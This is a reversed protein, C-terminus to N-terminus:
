RSKRVIGLTVSDSISALSIAWNCMIYLKWLLMGRIVHDDYRLVDGEITANIYVQINFADGTAIANYQFRVISNWFINYNRMILEETYTKCLISWTGYESPMAM